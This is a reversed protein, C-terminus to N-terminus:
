SFKVSRFEDIIWELWSRPTYCSAQLPLPHKGSCEAPAITFDYGKAEMCGIIYRSSPDDPDIARYTEFFRSAEKECAAIDKARDPLCGALTLSLLAVLLVVARRM